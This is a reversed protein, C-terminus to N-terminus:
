KWTKAIIFFATIFMWICAKSYAYTKSDKPYIDLLMIVPDCPLHINLQTLFGGFQRGFYRYWKANSGIIFSVKLLKVDKGANTTTLRGSKPVKVCSYCRTM